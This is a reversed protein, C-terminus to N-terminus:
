KITKLTKYIETADGPNYNTKQWVIECNKNLIFVHPTANVSLARKFDSNLDLLIKFEWTKGNVLPGIKSSSRSDDISIAYLVIGMENQWDAYVENIEDLMKINPSCCSKWFIIVIPKGDNSIDSSSINKGELTKLIATPLKFKISDSNQALSSNAIVCFIMM